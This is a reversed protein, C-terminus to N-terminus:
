LTNCHTALFTYDIHDVLTAAHQLTNCHAATYLLFYTTLIHSIYQLTNCHTATHQLTDYHTAPFIYDIHTIYHEWVHCFIARPNTRPISAGVFLIENTPAKIVPARRCIKNTPATDRCLIHRFMCFMRTVTVWINSHSPDHWVYSNGMVATDRYRMHEIHSAISRTVPWTLCSHSPDHWVHTHRTMDFMLTVLWTLCSHSWDHLLYWHGM